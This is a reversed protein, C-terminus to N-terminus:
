SDLYQWWMEDADCQPEMLGKGLDAYRYGGDGFYLTSEVSRDTTVGNEILRKAIRQKKEKSKLLEVTEGRPMVVWKPSLSSEDFDVVPCFSSRVAQNYSQKEFIEQSADVETQNQTLSNTNENGDVDRRPLKVIFDTNPRHTWSPPLTFVYISMGEGICQLSESCLDEVIAEDLRSDRDCTENLSASLLRNAYECSMDRHEDRVIQEESLLDDFTM